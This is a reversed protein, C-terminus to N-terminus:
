EGPFQRFMETVAYDLRKRVADAAQQRKVDGGAVGVWVPQHSAGDVLLVVLAGKPITQLSPLPNGQGERVEFSTMEIGAVFTVLLDPSGGAVVMGRRGLERDVMAKVAADADFGPPEWQGLPDNVIRATELWAYTQYSTFTTEPSARSVVEIDSTDVTACATVLLGACLVLTLGPPAAVERLYAGFRRPNDGM